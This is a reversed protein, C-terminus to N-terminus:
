KENNIAGRLYEITREEKESPYGRKLVEIINEIECRTLKVELKKYQNIKYLIIKLDNIYGLSSETPSMLECSLEITIARQLIELEEEKLHEISKVEEVRELIYHWKLVNYIIDLERKAFERM